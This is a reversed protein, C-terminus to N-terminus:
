VRVARNAKRRAPLCDRLGSIADSVEDDTAVGRDRWLHAAVVARSAAVLWSLQEPTLRRFREKGATGQASM